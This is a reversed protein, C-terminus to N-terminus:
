PNGMPIHFPATQAVSDKMQPYSGMELHVADSSLAIQLSCLTPFFQFLFFIDLKFLKKFPLAVTKLM